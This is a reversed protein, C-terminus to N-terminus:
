RFAKLRGSRQELELIEKREKIEVFCKFYRDTKGAPCCLGLILEPSAARSAIDARSRRLWVM